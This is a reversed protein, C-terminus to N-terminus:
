VKKLFNSLIIKIKRLEKEQAEKKKLDEPSVPHTGKFEDLKTKYEDMKKTIDSIQAEISEILKSDRSEFVREYYKDSTTPISEEEECHRKQNRHAKMKM